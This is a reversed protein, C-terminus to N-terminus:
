KVSLIYSWLNEERVYLRQSGDLYVTMLALVVGINAILSILSLQKYNQLQALLVLVGIGLM